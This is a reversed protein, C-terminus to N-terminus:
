VYKLKGGNFQKQVDIYVQYTRQAITSWDLERVRERGAGGMRKALVPDQLLQGIKFALEKPEGYKVLFGEKGDTIMEPVGGVRTVVTPKGSAMAELLVIPHSEERSPLVFVAAEKYERELQEDSIDALFKVNDSVDLMEVKEVLGDFYRQDIIGGVMHLEAEPSNNRILPLAEILHDQGKIDQFRGVNLLRGAVPKENMDLWKREVGNPIIEISKAGMRKLETRLNPSVVIFTHVRRAEKKELREWILDHVKGKFTRNKNRIQFTMTHVTIITPYQKALRAAALGFPAGIMQAHVIDPNIQRVVKRIRLQDGFLGKITTPFNSSPVPHLFINDAEKRPTEGKHTTTFVIHMEIGPIAAMEEKLNFIHREAGGRINKTMDYPCLWAIKM